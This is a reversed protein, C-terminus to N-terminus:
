KSLYMEALEEATQKAENVVVDLKYDLGREHDFVHNFDCGLEVSRYGKLQGHKAYYTIGGHWKVNAFPASTYDHTVRGPSEPTLKVIKSPLWVEHFRNKLDSEYLFVYYNWVGKGDNLPTFPQQRELGWHKVVVTLGAHTFRWIEQKNM